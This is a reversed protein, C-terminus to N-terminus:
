TSSVAGSRTGFHGLVCGVDTSDQEVSHGQSVQEVSPGRLGDYTIGSWRMYIEKVYDALVSMNHVSAKSQCLM